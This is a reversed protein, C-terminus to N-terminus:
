AIRSEQYNDFVHRADETPWVDLHATEDGESCIAVSEGVDVEDLRYHYDSVKSLTANGIWVIRIGDELAM